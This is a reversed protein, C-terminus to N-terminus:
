RGTPLAPRTSVLLDYVHTEGPFTRRDGSREFGDYLSLEEPDEHRGTNWGVVLLGQPPLIRHLEDFTRRMQEPTDIGFGLVGNLVVGDFFGAPRHRTLEQVPAMIHRRAGWVAVRPAVDLTTYRDAPFLREYHWTYSATGVFLVSRCRDRMRPLIETELCRRSALGPLHGYPRNVGWALLLSRQVGKPLM